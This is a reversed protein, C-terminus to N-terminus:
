ELEQQCYPCRIKRDESAEIPAVDGCEWQGTIAEKYMTVVKWSEEGRHWFDQRKEVLFGRSNTKPPIKDCSHVGNDM